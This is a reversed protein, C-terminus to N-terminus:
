ESQPRSCFEIIKRSNKDLSGLVITAAFFINVKASYLELMEEKFTSDESYNMQKQHQTYLNRIVNVLTEDYFDDLPKLISKIDHTYNNRIYGMKELFKCEINTILKLNKAFSLRGYNKNGMKMREFNKEINAYPISRCLHDVLIRELFTYFLIFFSWDDYEFLQELTGKPANAIKELSTIMDRIYSRVRPDISFEQDFKSTTETM